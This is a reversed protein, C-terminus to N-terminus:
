SIRTAEQSLSRRQVNNLKSKRKDRKTQKELLTMAANADKM